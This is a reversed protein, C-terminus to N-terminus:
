RPEGPVTYRGTIMSRLNNWVGSVLVMFVHLLAFAVLLWACIFHLTRASQRGGFIDVWGPLIANAWPSMGLGTAFTLPLVVFIIALYALKQMINYRRAAEGRPHRFRLHDRISAGIGGIEAGTPLLDHRLHRTSASLALYALGNFLLLWAFFFHWYRASALWRTDPITIWSPFARAELEGDPGRVAGLVGTTDFPRGLVTTVGRLNGEPTAEWAITMLAERGTSSSRGWHLEPYAGFINLGSMFLVIVALANLWHTIRVWLAHRRYSESAAAPTM